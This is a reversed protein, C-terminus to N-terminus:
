LPLPHCYLQSGVVIVYVVSCSVGLWLLRHFARTQCLCMLTIPNFQNIPGLSERKNDLDWTILCFCAFLLVIMYLVIVPGTFTQLLVWWWGFSWVVCVILLGLALIWLCGLINITKWLSWILCFHIMLFCSSVRCVCSCHSTFYIM